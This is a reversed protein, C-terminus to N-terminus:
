GYRNFIQKPLQPLPSIFCFIFIIYIIGFFFFWLFILFTAKVLFKFLNWYNLVIVLVSIFYIYIYFFTNFIVLAHLLIVKGILAQCILYYDSKKEISCNILFLYISFGYFNTYWIHHPKIPYVLILCIQFCFTIWIVMVCCTHAIYAILVSLLLSM